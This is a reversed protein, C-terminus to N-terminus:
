VAQVVRHDHDSPFRRPVAAHISTGRRGSRLRLVGGYQQARARMGTVGRGCDFQSCDNNGKSGQGDDRVILHVCDSIMRFDLTVYSAKAHHHVNALAEQAIRLLSRQLELPLCNLDTNVRVRVELKSRSAFGAAYEEVTSSLGAAQLAPPHMLYSFTRIEKMAEHLSAEM